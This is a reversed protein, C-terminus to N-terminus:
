CDCRRRSCEEEGRANGRFRQRVRVVCNVLTRSSCTFGLIPYIKPPISGWVPLVHNDPQKYLTPSEGRPSAARTLSALAIPPLPINLPNLSDCCTPDIVEPLPYM